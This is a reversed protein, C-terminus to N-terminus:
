PSLPSPSPPARDVGSGYLTSEPCLPAEQRRERKAATTQPRPSFHPTQLFSGGHGWSLGLFNRQVITGSPGLPLVMRPVVATTPATTSSRAVTCGLVHWSRYYQQGVGTTGAGPCARYYPRYYQAQSSCPRLSLM